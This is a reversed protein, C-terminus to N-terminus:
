GKPRPSLRGCGSAASCPPSPSARGRQTPPVPSKARQQQQQLPPPPPPKPQRPGPPRALARAPASPWTRTRAAAGVTATKATTGPRHPLLLPRPKPPPPRQSKPPPLLLRRRGRREDGGLSGTMTVARRFLELTTTPTPLSSYTPLTTPRSWSRSKRYPAPGMQQGPWPPASPSCTSRPSRRRCKACTSNPHRRHCPWLLSSVPLLLMMLSRCPVLTSSQEGRPTAGTARRPPTAAKEELLLPQQRRRRYVCALWCERWSACRPACAASSRTVTPGWPAPPGTPTSGARLLQPSTRLLLLFLLLAARTAEVTAGVKARARAAAAAAARLAAAASVM